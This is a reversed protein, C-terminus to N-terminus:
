HFSEFPNKEKETLKAVGPAILKNQGAWLYTRLQRYETKM